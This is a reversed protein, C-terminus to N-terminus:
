GQREREVKIQALLETIKIPGGEAGSVQSEPKDREGEERGASRCDM